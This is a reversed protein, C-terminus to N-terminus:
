RAGTGLLDIPEGLFARVPNPTEIAKGTEPDVSVYVVRATFVPRGECTGRFVLDWSTRGWREVAVDLDLVDGSALSGQWELTCRKLMMDWVIGELRMPRVWNELADDLYAMYHANFVVGQQDIEGWRVRITHRYAGRPEPM